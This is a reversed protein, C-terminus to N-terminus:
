FSLRARVGFVAIVDKGPNFPPDIVLQLDPTIALSRVVQIRYFFETTYQDDTGDPQPRGWSLGIGLLDQKRFKMGLGVSVHGKLAAGGDHAYGGRLFPMWREGFFWAASFSLGWGDPVMVEDRDDVHWGTVHFNDFIFREPASTWGLEAHTFFEGNDFPDEFPKSADANPDAFGAILYLNDSLTVGLAAGLGQNPAPITPNTLFALNTFQTWPNVLGYLDLYDTADVQGFQLTVRDGVKQKWFLNTLIWGADNFPVGSPLASGFGFALPLPTVESKIDHRNEGKFILSGTFPGKRDLIEWSGFLRWMGAAGDDAGPSSTAVEYLSSYDSGFSLGIRKKLDSKWDFYPELVQDVWPIGSVEDRVRADDALQGRTSQPGDTLWGSGGGPTGQPEPAGPAATPGQSAAPLAPAILIIAALALKVLRALAALRIPRM